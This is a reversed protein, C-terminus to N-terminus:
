KSYRKSAKILTKYTKLLNDLENIDSMENKQYSIMMPITVFLKMLILQDNLVQEHKDILSVLTDFESVSQKYQLELNSFLEVTARRTISDNIRNTYGQAVAYYNLNIGSYKKYNNSSDRKMNQIAQIANYLKALEANNELSEKYLKMVIDEYNRKSKLSYSSENAELLVAPTIQAEVETNNNEVVQEQCSQIALLVMLSFIVRILKM